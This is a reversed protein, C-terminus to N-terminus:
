LIKKLLSPTNVSLIKVPKNTLNAWDHPTTSLMHLSDGPYLKIEEDEMFVTLVGELVYVFEEGMHAYPKIKEKEGPLVEVLVPDLVRDIANNALSYYVFNSNELRFGKQEYSRYIIGQHKESFNFFSALDIDLATAINKLTNITVSTQGRELQSLFSISFNAKEGLQQLTMGQAKRSEKIKKGIEVSIKELEMNEMNAEKGRTTNKM